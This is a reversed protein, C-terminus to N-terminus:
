LPCSQTITSHNPIHPGGAAQMELFYAILVNSSATWMGRMHIRSYCVKYRATTQRSLQTKPAFLAEAEVHNGENSLIKMTFILADDGACIEVLKRCKRFDETRLFTYFVESFVDPSLRLSYQNAAVILDFVKQLSNHDVLGRLVLYFMNQRHERIKLTLISEIPKDIFVSAEEIRRLLFKIHRPRDEAQFIRSVDPGENAIEELMGKWTEETPPHVFASAYLTWDTEGGKERDARIIKLLDFNDGSIAKFRAVIIKDDRSTAPGARSVVMRIRDMWSLMQSANRKGKRSGIITEVNSVLKGAFRFIQASSWKSSASSQYASWAKDLAEDSNADSGVFEEFRELDDV